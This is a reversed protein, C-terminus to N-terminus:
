SYRAFDVIEILIDLQDHDVHLTPYIFYLRKLYDDLNNTQNIKFNPVIQVQAIGGVDLVGIKTQL